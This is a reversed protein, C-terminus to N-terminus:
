AGDPGQFSHEYVIVFPLDTDPSSVFRIIGEFTGDDKIKPRYIRTDAEKNGFSKKEANGMEEAIAGWNFKRREAM